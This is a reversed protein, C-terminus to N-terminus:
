HNNKKMSQKDLKIILPQKPHQVSGSIVWTFLAALALSLVSAVVKFQGSLNAIKSKNDSCNNTIQEIRESYDKQIKNYIKSEMNSVDKISEKLDKLDSSIQNIEMSTKVRWEGPTTVQGLDQPNTVIQDTM